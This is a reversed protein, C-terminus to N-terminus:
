LWCEQPYQNYIVGSHILGIFVSETGAFQPTDPHVSFFLIALGLLGVLGFRELLRLMM